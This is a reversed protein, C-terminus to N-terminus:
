GFDEDILSSQTKAQEIISNLSEDTLSFYDKKLFFMLEFGKGKMEIKGRPLLYDKEKFNNYFSASCNIKMPESTSKIRATTNIGDGFVNYIIKTKGVIGAVLDGQHLGIRCQWNINSKRFKIIDIICRAFKALNTLQDENKINVNTVALYADGITKIRECRYNKALIDFCTFMENLEFNLYDPDSQSAIETFGVFDLMIIGCNEFKKPIVRGIKKLESLTNEPLINKILKELKLNDSSIKKNQKEVLDIYTELMQNAKTAEFNDIAIGYIFENKKTLEIKFPRNNNKANVKFSYQKGKSIKEFKVLDFENFISKFNARSYM